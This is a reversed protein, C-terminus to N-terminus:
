LYMLTCAHICIYLHVYMYVYLIIVHTCIHVAYAYICIAGKCFVCNNICVNVFIDICLYLIGKM